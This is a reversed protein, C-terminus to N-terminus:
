NPPIEKLNQITVQWKKQRYQFQGLFLYVRNIELDGHTKFVEPFMVADITMFQGKLELFAMPEDNKTKLSRAKIVRAIFRLTQKKEFAEELTYIDPHKL